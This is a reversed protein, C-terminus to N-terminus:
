VSPGIPTQYCVIISNYTKCIPMGDDPNRIDIYVGYVGSTIPIGNYKEPMIFNIPFTNSWGEAVSVFIKRQDTMFVTESGDLLFRSVNIIMNVDGQYTKQGKNTINFEFQAWEGVMFHETIIRMTCSLDPKIIPPKNAELYQRWAAATWGRGDDYKELIKEDSWEWPNPSEDNAVNHWEPTITPQLSSRNTADYLYDGHADPYAGEDDTAEGSPNAPTNTPTPTNTGQQSMNITTTGGDIKITVMPPASTNTSTLAISAGVFLVFGVILVLLILIPKNGELDM